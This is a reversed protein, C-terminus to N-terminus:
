RARRASVPAEGADALMFLGRVLQDHDEQDHVPPSYGTHGLARRMTARWATPSELARRSFYIHDGSSLVITAGASGDLLADLEDDLM